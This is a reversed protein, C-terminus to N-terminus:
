RMGGAQRIAQACARSFSPRVREVAAAMFPRGAMRVTGYEIYVGYHQGVAVVAEMPGRPRVEGFFPNGVPNSARAAAYGSSRDTVTYISNKLAGTDVPVLMKSHAEIDFAAKRVVQALLHNAQRAVLRYDRGQVTMRIDLRM